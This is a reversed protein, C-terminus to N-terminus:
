CPVPPRLKQTATRALMTNMMVMNTLMATTSAVQFLDDLFLSWGRRVTGNGIPKDVHGDDSNNGGEPEIGMRPLMGRNLAGGQEEHAAESEPEEDGSDAPRLM